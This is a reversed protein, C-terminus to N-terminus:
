GNGEDDKVRLTIEYNSVNGFSYAFSSVNGPDYGVGASSTWEYEVIVDTDDPDFSSSGDFFVSDNVCYIHLDVPSSVVAVPPTKNTVNDVITVDVEDAVPSWDGEDDKM